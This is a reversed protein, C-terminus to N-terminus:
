YQKVDGNGGNTLYIRWEIGGDAKVCIFCTDIELKIFLATM